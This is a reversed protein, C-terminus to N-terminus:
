GHKQKPSEVPVTELETSAVTFDGQFFIGALQGQRADHDIREM